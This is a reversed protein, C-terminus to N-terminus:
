HTSVTLTLQHHKALTLSLPKVSLQFMSKKKPELLKALSMLTTLVLIRVVFKGSNGSLQVIAGFAEALTTGASDPVLRVLQGSTVPIAPYVYESHPM